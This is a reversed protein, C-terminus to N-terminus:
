RRALTIDAQELLADVTPERGRFAKFLVAPEETGGPELIYQLFKASTAQDFVGNELFLSFADASMIEAWLYSYYGAAYGGIFIHAFGNQFRNYDPTKFLATQQRIANLVKQAQNKVGPQYNLHLDFDFTALEIQRVLMMARHFNKAREMRQYLKDPLPEGTQYHKAFLDLSQKQWAWNELFQSAVEVADWPIGNIGAVDAYDVTTLMHQLCHGFEHFLTIVEDHTFLAPTNGVPPNLNCTLYAIPLQVTTDDIKRRVRCEDMWAGGRKNERAYLDILFLARLHNEADYVEYCRVEKHWTDVAQREKITLGFLKHVIVFLGELVNPEAFYPRLDEQSINYQAQCLKESYYATDWAKLENIGFATKAFQNLEEVEAKAKPLCKSLLEKLFATVEHPNNAMKTALSYDAYNKFDLLNALQFRLELIEDILHSNDFQNANPGQDSARTCYAQYFQERLQRNDAYTVVAHYTPMDLTLCWGDLKKQEAFQKGLQKTSEPLGSLETEDTTHYRWAQTADLLNQEFTASLESLKKTIHAFQKKKDADLAVGALAFDRLDNNIVKQQAKNLTSFKKSNKISQIAQYLKQNHSMQTYYDSLRPLCANYAKRLADSDVVAHLHSVTSWYNHLQDGLIEMPQILTEWDFEHHLKLLQDITDLNHNLIVDLTDPIDKPHISQYSPLDIHPQQNM